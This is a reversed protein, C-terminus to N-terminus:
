TQHTPLCRVYQFKPRTTWSYVERLLPDSQVAWILAAESWDLPEIKRVVRLPLDRRIKFRGRRPVEEGILFLNVQIPLLDGSPTPAPDDSLTRIACLLVHLEDVEEPIDTEGEEIQSQEAEGNPDATDVDMQEIADM